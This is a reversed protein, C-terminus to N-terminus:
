DWRFIRILGSDSGTVLVSWDTSVAACSIVDTGTDLRPLEANTNLDWLRLFKDASSLSMSIGGSPTRTINSGSGLSALMTAGPNFVLMEPYSTHGALSGTIVGNEANRINIIRDEGGTAMLQGAPSYGVAQIWGTHGGFNAIENGNAVDMLYVKDDRKGTAIRSGDPSFAVMRFVGTINRVESLNTSNWLHVMLTGGGGGAGALVSGDPSFALQGTGAPSTQAM